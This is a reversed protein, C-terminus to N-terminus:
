SATSRKQIIEENSIGIVKMMEEFYKSAELLDAKKFIKKFQALQKGKPLYKGMVGGMFRIQERENEITIELASKSKIGLICFASKGEDNSGFTLSKGFKKGDRGTFGNEDMTKQMATAIDFTNWTLPIAYIKPQSIEEVDLEIDAIAQISDLVDSKTLGVGDLFYGTKRHLQKNLDTFEQSKIQKAEVLAEARELMKSLEAREEKTTLVPDASANNKNPKVKLM